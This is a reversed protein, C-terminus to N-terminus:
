PAKGHCRKATAHQFVHLNTIEGGPGLGDIQRLDRLESAIEALWGINQSFLLNPSVLEMEGLFFLQGGAGDGDSYGSQPEEVLDGEAAPPVEFVDDRGGCGRVFQRDNETGLFYRLEQDTHRRAFVPGQEGSTISGAQAEGFGNM